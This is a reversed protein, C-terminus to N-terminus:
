LRQLTAMVQLGAPSPGSLLSSFFASTGLAPFTKTSSFPLWAFEGVVGVSSGEWKSVCEWVRFRQAGVARCVWSRQLSVEPVIKKFTCVGVCVCVCVCASGPLSPEMIGTQLLLQIGVVVRQKEEEASM